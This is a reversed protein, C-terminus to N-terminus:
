VVSKRDLSFTSTPQPVFDTQSRLTFGAIRGLRHSWGAIALTADLKRGSPTRTSHYRLEAPLDQLLDELNFANHLCEAAIKNSYATGAGVVVASFLVNIAMKQIHGSAVEDVYYETDCWMLASRGGPTLHMGIITM